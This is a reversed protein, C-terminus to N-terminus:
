ENYAETRNFAPRQMASVFELGNTFNCLILEFGAEMRLFGEIEWQAGLDCLEQARVYDGWPETLKSQNRLIYDTSDLTGMSTKGASMGDIYLVRSLPRTARYIHLYGDMAADTSFSDHEMDHRDEEVVPPRPNGTPRPGGPRGGPRDGRGPGEGPGRGPPRGGPRRTRAFVEAHEIEFALWEMGTVPNPTHTGHYLQVGSPISVSWFSLGNHQLSSGWQRMSSHIANFIHPANTRASDLDPGFDDRSPPSLAVQPPAVSKAISVLFSLALLSRLAMKFVPLIVPVSFFLIYM